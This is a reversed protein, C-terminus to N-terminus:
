EVLKGLPTDKLVEYWPISCIHDYQMWSTGQYTNGPSYYDCQVMIGEVEKIVVDAGSYTIAKQGRSMIVQDVTYRVNPHNPTYNIIAGDHISLNDVSGSSGLDIFISNSM